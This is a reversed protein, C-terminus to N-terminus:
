EVLAAFGWDRTLDRRTGFADYLITVRNTTAGPVPHTAPLPPSATLLACLLGHLWM